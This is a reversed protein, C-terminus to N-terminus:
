GPTTLRARVEGVPVKWSRSQRLDEEIPFPGLGAVTFSGEWLTEVQLSKDGHSTFIHSVSLDPFPGGSHTTRIRSGHFNWTWYPAASVEIEHGAVSHKWRQTHSQQGSACVYPLQVIAREAPWCKPELAPVYQHFSDFISRDIDAVTAIRYTTLCILGTEVWDGNTPRFWTRVHDILGPCSRIVADCYNNPGPVCAPTMRWGCDRCNAVRTRDESSVSPPLILGGSGEYRIDNPNGIVQPNATSSEMLWWNMGAASFIVCVILLAVARVRHRLGYWM